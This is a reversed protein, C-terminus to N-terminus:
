VGKQFKDCPPLLALLVNYEKIEYLEREREVYLASEMRLM